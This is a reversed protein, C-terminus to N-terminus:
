WIRVRNEPPIFMMDGPGVDFASYFADLNSAAGIVRFRAPAHTDALARAVGAETVPEAAWLSAFAILFRQDGSLGDIIPADAGALTRRYADHAIALGSVDAINEGISLEGNLTSGPIIEYRGYQAVLAQARREFEARDDSTMWEVRRGFGDYQSGARDFAHSLEHAIFWGLAGYNAADDADKQFYPPQLLAAPLVVQNRSVSYSGNVSQASMTWEERDVPRGLKELEFGWRLTQLRTANGILDDPRTVLHSYDHIRDPGGMRIVLNDLKALAGAKSTPSMWDSTEIRTRFAAVVNDLIVRAHQGAEPSLHEQIYIRGLADGMNDEVFGVARLWRPRSVTAGGLARVSFADSEDRFPKSLLRSHHEALRFRLYARWVEIPTHTVLEGYVAFYDPESVNFREVEPPIGNAEAYAALNLGPSALEARTMRHSTAGPVRTAVETWQARILNTELDVISQAMPAADDYGTLALVREVHERYASRVAAMRPSDDLYHDRTPLNLGVQVIDPIYQVPNQDDAHIWIGLGVDLGQASLRGLARSVDVGDAMSELRQFEELLPSVGRADVEAENMYSAYIDSLRRDEPSTSASLSRLDQDLEEYVRVQLARGASWGSLYPPPTENSRWNGVGFGYFDDQARITRDIDSLDIGSAGTTETQAEALAPMMVTLACLAALGARNLRIRM